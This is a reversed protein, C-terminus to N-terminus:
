AIRIFEGTHHAFYLLYKGLPNKIFNPTRLCSPGNISDSVEKPLNLKSIILTKNDIFQSDNFSKKLSM